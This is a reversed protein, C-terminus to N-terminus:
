FNAHVGTTGTRISKLVFCGPSKNLRTQKNYRIKVMSVKEPHGSGPLDQCIWSYTRTGQFVRSNQLNTQFDM